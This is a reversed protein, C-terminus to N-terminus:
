RFTHITLRPSLTQRISSRITPRPGLKECAEKRVAFGDNCTQLADALDAAAQRQCTKRATQDSVNVCKGLTEEYDSQAAARCSTLAHDATQQCANTAGAAITPSMLNGAFFATVALMATTLSRRSRSSSRKVRIDSRISKTKVKGGKNKNIREAMGPLVFWVVVLIIPSHHCLFDETLRPGTTAPPSSGPQRTKEAPTM